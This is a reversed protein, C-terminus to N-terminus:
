YRAPSSLSLSIRFQGAVAFIEQLMYETVRPSLNGVYLHARKPPEGGPGLLSSFLPPPFLRNLQSNTEGIGRTLSPLPSSVTSWLTSSSTSPISGDQTPTPTSYSTPFFSSFPFSALPSLSPRAPSPTYYPSPLSLSLSLSFAFTFLDLVLVLSRSLSLPSLAGGREESVGSM